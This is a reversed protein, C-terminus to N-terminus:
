WRIEFDPNDDDREGAVHTPMGRSQSRAASAPTVAAAGRRM